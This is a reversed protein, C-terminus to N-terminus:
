PPEFGEGAVMNSSNLEVLETRQGDAPSLIRRAVPEMTQGNGPMVIAYPAVSRIHAPIVTAGEFTCTDM